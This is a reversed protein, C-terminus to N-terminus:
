RRLGNIMTFATSWIYYLGYVFPVSLLSAGMIIKGKSYNDNYAKVCANDYFTENDRLENRYTEKKVYITNLNKECEKAKDMIALDDASREAKVQVQAEKRLRDVTAKNITTESQLRSIDSNLQSIQSTDKVSVAVASNGSGVAVQTTNGQEAVKLQSKLNSIQRSNADVIAKATVYEPNSNLVTQLKDEESRVVSALDAKASSLEVKATMEEEGFKTKVAKDLANNVDSNYGRKMECFIVLGAACCAGGVLLGVLKMDM